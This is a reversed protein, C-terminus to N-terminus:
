EVALGIFFSNGLGEFYAAADGQGMKWSEQLDPSYLTVNYPDYGTLLLYSGGETYALVPIGKDIFYLMQNLSCGSGDLVMLDGYIGNKRFSELGTRFTESRTWPDKLNCIPSRNIRNWIMRGNQDTVYGMRDYAQAAAEQFDYSSGLYRGGGYSYFLLEEEAPVGSVLELTSSDEYSFAEPLQLRTHGARIERDTQVFYQRGRDQSAYWGIGEMPDEELKENCVITDENQFVYQAGGSKVLRKLHIRGDEAVVDSLYIGEKKYESEVRMQDDVIYLAYMPLEKERGNAMWLDSERSLGYILDSGVFGLVRAYDGSDALIDQKSSTNFDM